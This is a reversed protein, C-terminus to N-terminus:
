SKKVSYIYNNGNKNKLVIELYGSPAPEITNGSEDQVYEDSKLCGVTLIIKNKEKKVNLLKPLYEPTMVTLPVTYGSNEFLFEKGDIEATMNEFEAGEGFLERFRNEVASSPIVTESDSLEYKEREEEDSIISWCSSSVLSKMDAEKGSVYEDIGSVVIPEYFFSYDDAPIKNAMVDVTEGTQNVTVGSTDDINENVFVSIIIAFVLFGLPLFKKPKIPLKETRKKRINQPRKTKEKKTNKRVSHSFSSSHKKRRLVITFGYM